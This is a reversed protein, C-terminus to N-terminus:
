FRGSFQTDNSANFLESVRNKFPKNLFRGLFQTDNIASLNM